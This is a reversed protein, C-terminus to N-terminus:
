IKINIIYMQIYFCLKNLILIFSINPMSNQPIISKIRLLNMQEQM